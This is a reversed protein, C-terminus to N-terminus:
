RTIASVPACSEVEIGNAYLIHATNFRLQILRLVRAHNLTVFQNDVLRSAPVLASKKGFLTQARWDRVLVRQRAPMVMDLDPRTHGLSGAAVTVSECKVETTQIDRLVAVGVDRTIIRDGPSLFEVPIEGDMTLLCTGALLGNLRAQETHCPQADGPMSGSLPSSGEARGLTKPKM